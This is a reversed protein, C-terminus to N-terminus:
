NHRAYYISRSTHNLRHQLRTHEWPGIHGDNHRFRYRLRATRYQQHELRHYERPGIQDQKVGQYIRAQQHHTRWGLSHKSGAFSFTPITLLTVAALASALVVSTFRRPM